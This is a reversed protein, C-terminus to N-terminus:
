PATWGWAGCCRAVEVDGVFGRQGPRHRRCPEGRQRARAQADAYRLDPDDWEEWDAARPDNPHGTYPYDHDTM